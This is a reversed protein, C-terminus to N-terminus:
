ISFDKFSQYKKQQTSLSFYFLMFFKYIDEVLQLFTLYGYVTKVYFKKKRKM